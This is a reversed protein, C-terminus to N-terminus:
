SVRRVPRTFVTVPLPGTEELQSIEKEAFSPGTPPRAILCVDFYLYSSLPLRYAFTQMRSYNGLYTKRKHKSSGLETGTVWNTKKVVRM